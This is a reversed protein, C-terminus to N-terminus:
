FRLVFHEKAQNPRRMLIGMRFFDLSLHYESSSILIKWADLMCQSWRIDDLVFITQEHSCQVLKEMYRLLAKGDHHGDVFILDFSPLEYNDLFNDFTSHVFSISSAHTITVYKKATLMTQECGEVTTIQTEQNGARLHFTGVGLSTGLELINKPQFYTSLCYLMNGYKGKSSSHQFIKKVSRFTALKKSGAGCDHVQILSNDAALANYLAKKEQIIEKAPEIRLCEDQLAYVFPSHIGHRRKSQILFRFYEFVINV